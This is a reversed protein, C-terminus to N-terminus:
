HSAAQVAAYEPHESTAAATPPIVIVNCHLDRLAAEAVSGLLFRSVPPRNHTGLIVLDAQWREAEAVIEYAPMGFRLIPVPARSRPRREALFDDLEAGAIRSVADRPLPPPVMGEMIVMLLRREAEPCIGEVVDMGTEHVDAATSSLDTTLLVRQLLLPLGRVVLVPIRAGHIVRQATTGLLARAIRGRRTAGVVILDAGHQEAHELLARDGPGAVTHVAIRADPYRRHVETEFRDAVAQSYQDMSWADVYEMAPQAALMAPLSFAHVVHLEAGTREALEAAAALTPDQAQADAVGAVIVRIPSM